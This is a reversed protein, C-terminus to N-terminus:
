KYLFFKEIRFNKIDSIKRRRKKKKKMQNYVMGSTTFEKYFSISDLIQTKKELIKIEHNKPADDAAIFYSKIVSDLYMCFSDMFDELTPYGLFWKLMKLVQIEMALISEITFTFACYCNLDQIAVPESENFKGTQYTTAFINIYKILLLISYM